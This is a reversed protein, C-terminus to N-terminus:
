KITDGIKYNSVITRAIIDLGCDGAWFRGLSDKVMVSGYQSPTGKNIAIVVIPSTLDNFKAQCSCLLLIIVILIKKM